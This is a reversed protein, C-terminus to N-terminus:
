KCKRSANVWNTAFSNNQKFLYLAVKINNIPNKLWNKLEGYNEYGIGSIKAVLARNEPSSLNIQFLGVSDEGNTNNAESNGGSEVLCVCSAMKAKNGFYPQLNKVSCFGGETVPQKPEPDKPKNTESTLPEGMGTSENDEGVVMDKWLLGPTNLGIAEDFGNSLAKALEDPDANCELVTYTSGPIEPTIISCNFGGASAAAKVSDVGIFTLNGIQFIDGSQNIRYRYKTAETNENETIQITKDEPPESVVPKIEEQIPMPLETPLQEAPVPTAQVQYIVSETPKPEFRNGFGDLVVLSSIKDAPLKNDEKVQISEDLIPRFPTSTIEASNPRTNINLDVKRNKSRVCGSTFLAIVLLGNAVVVWWKKELEVSM